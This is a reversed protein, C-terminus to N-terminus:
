GSVTTAARPHYCLAPPATNRGTLTVARLAALPGPEDFGSMAKGRWQPYQARPM